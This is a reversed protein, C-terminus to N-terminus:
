LGLEGDEIDLVEALALANKLIFAGYQRALFVLATAGNHSWDCMEELRRIMEADDPVTGDDNLVHTSYEWEKLQCSCYSSHCENKLVEAM